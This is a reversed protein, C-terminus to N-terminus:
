RKERWHLLQDELQSHSHAVSRGLDRAPKAIGEELMECWGLEGLHHGGYGPFVMPGPEVPGQTHSSSTEGIPGVAYQGM